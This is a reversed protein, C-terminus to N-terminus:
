RADPSRLPINSGQRRSYRQTRREAVLLYLLDRLHGQSVAPPLGVGGPLAASGTTALAAAQDPLCSAPWLAAALQGATPGPWLVTVSPSLGAGGPHIVIPGPTDGQGRVLWTAALWFCAQIQGAVPTVRLGACPLAGSAAAAVTALAQQCIEASGFTTLLEAQPTAELNAVFADEAAGLDLGEAATAIAAGVAEATAPWGAAHQTLVRQIFPAFALPLVGIEDDPDISRVAATAVFPATRGVRDRSPVVM